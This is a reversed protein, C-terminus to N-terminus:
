FNIKYEVFSTDRLQQVWADYASDSSQNETLLKQAQRRLNSITKSSKRKELVELIHWGFQTKFPPSLQKIASRQAMAAFEPVYRDIESWGLEGGKRASGKDDSNKQALAAFSGGALIQQRINVIKARAAQEDQAGAPTILIHRINYEDIATQQDGRKDILKLLHFGQSDHFLPSLQNKQLTNLVRLFSPSLTKAEVWNTNAKANPFSLLDAGQVIRQRVNEAQQKLAKIEPLRSYQRQPFALHQFKYSIGQSLLDAQNNIVDNIALRENAVNSQQYSKQLQSIIIRQRISERFNKYNLGERQVAARFQQLNMKNQKAIRQMANDLAEDNIVIGMRQARQAQLTDLILLDLSKKLLAQQSLRAYQPQIKLQRARSRVESLMIVEDNAIAAIEDLKKAASSTAPILLSLTLAIFFSLNRTTKLRDPTAPRYRIPKFSTLNRMTQKIPISLAMTNRIIQYGTIYSITKIIRNNMAM